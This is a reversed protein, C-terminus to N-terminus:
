KKKRGDRELKEDILEYAPLYKGDRALSKNKETTNKAGISTYGEDYLKCYPIKLIRIFNWVDEYSWDLIPNIRMCKPWGESTPEFFNMKECYPDTRRVGILVSDIKSDIKLLESLSEKFNSGKISILDFKFTSVTEKIFNDVEEFTDEVFYFVKIKPDTFNKTVYRTLHLLIINEKGGNFSLSIGNYKLTAEKLIEVSQKIKERLTDDFEENELSSLEDVWM